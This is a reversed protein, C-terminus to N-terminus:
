SRKAYVVVHAEGRSPSLIPLYTPPVNKKIRKEKTTPQNAQQYVVAYQVYHWRHM